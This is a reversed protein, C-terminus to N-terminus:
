SSTTGDGYGPRSNVDGFYGGLHEDRQDVPFRLEGAFRENTSSPTVHDSSMSLSMHSHRHMDQVNHGNTRRRTRGPVAGAASRNVPWSPQKLRKKKKKKQKVGNSGCSKLNQGLLAIEDLRRTTLSMPSRKSGRKGITVHADLHNLTGYAKTCNPWSSQYLHEIEDYRRRPRAKVANGPLSVLSYTGNTGDWQGSGWRRFAIPVIIFGPNSIVYNGPGDHSDHVPSAKRSDLSSVRQSSPVYNPSSRLSAPM